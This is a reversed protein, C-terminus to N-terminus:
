VGFWNTTAPVSTCAAAAASITVTGSTQTASGAMTTAPMAQIETALESVSAACAVIGSQTRARPMLM